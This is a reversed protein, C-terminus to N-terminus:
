GAAFRAALDAPIAQAKFGGPRTPDAIVWVRTEFAEVALEGNRSLRHTIEFSSRRVATLRSEIVVDDGYRTPQLFRARSEVTPCGAFPYAEQLQRKSLGLASEILLTTSHDFMAFYRPHFVIGAPDCDGWEIRVTRTNSPVDIGGGPKTGRLM